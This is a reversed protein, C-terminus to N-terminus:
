LEVPGAHHFTALMNMRKLKILCLILKRWKLRTRLTYCFIEMGLTLGLKESSSQDEKGVEVPHPAEATGHMGRHTWIWSFIRACILQLM